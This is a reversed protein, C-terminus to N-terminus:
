RKKTKVATKKPSTSLQKLQANISEFQKKMKELETEVSKSQYDKQDSDALIQKGDMELITSPKVELIEAIQILRTVTLASVDREINSYTSVSIDLENAMNEQSLGKLVRLM